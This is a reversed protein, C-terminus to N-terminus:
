KILPHLPCEEDSGACERADHDGSMSCWHENLCPCDTDNQCGSTCMHGYECELEKNNM